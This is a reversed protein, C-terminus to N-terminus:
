KPIKQIIPKGTKNLVLGRPRDFTDNAQKKVNVLIKDANEIWNILNEKYLFLRM